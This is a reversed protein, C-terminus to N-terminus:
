KTPDLNSRSPVPIKWSSSHVWSPLPPRHDSVWLLLLIFTTLLWCASNNNHAPARALLTQYDFLVSPWWIRTRRFMCLNGLISPPRYNLQDTENMFCQGGCLLLDICVHVLTQLKCEVDTMTCATRITQLIRYISSLRITTGAVTSTIILLSYYMNWYISFFVPCSINSSLLYM